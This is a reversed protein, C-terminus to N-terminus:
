KRNNEFKGKIRRIIKKSFGGGNKEEKERQKRDLILKNVFRKQYLNPYKIKLQKKCAKKYNCDRCLPSNFRFLTTFNICTYLGEIKNYFRKKINEENKNLPNIEIVSDEEIISDEKEILFGKIRLIDILENKKIEYKPYFNSHYYYTDSKTKSLYRKLAKQGLVWHLMIYYREGSDREKSNKIFDWYTFQTNFYDFLWDINLYQPNKEKLFNSFNYLSTNETYNFNYIKEGIKNYYCNDIKFSYFLFCEKLILAVKDTDIKFSM